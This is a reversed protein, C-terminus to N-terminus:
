PISSALFEFAPDAALQRAVFRVSDADLLQNAMIVRPVGFRRYV